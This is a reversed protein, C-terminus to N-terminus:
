DLHTEQLSTVSQNLKNLQMWSVSVVVASLTLVPFAPSTWLPLEALMPVPVHQTFVSRLALVLAAEWQWFLCAFTGKTLVGLLFNPKVVTKKSNLLFLLAPFLLLQYHAAQTTLAVTATVVAALSGAYSLTEPQEKRCRWCIFGVFLVLLVIAPFAFVPPLMVRFIAPGLGYSMYKTVAMWFGRPWHPSIATAATLLGLFTASFGWAIKHLEKWKALVMLFMWAILFCSLQPKITSLALLFGSLIFWRHARAAFAGALLLVVLASLNQQRDELIVPFTSITLIVLFVTFRRTHNFRIAYIWLPVCGAACFLLIIRFIQVATGFQLTVTPALLFIVYLPYVFAQLDKPDAPNKEDLERGYFGKQIERTLEPSYPTKKQLM